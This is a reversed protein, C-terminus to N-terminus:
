AAVIAEIFTRKIEKELKLKQQIATNIDGTASFTIALYHGTPNVKQTVRVFDRTGIDEVGEVKGGTTTIVEKLWTTVEAIPRKTEHLNIIFTARYHRTEM